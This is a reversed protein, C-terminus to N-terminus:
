FEFFYLTSGYSKGGNGGYISAKVVLDPNESMLILVEQVNEKAINGIITNQNNVVYIAPSGQYDYEKLKVKSFEPMKSLAEQRSTGDENNFSSGVLQTKYLYSHEEDMSMNIASDQQSPRSLLAENVSNAEHAIGMLKNNVDILGNNIDTLQQVSNELIKNKQESQELQRLLSVKDNALEMAQLLVEKKEQLLTENRSHLNQLNNIDQLEPDLNEFNQFQNQDYNYMENQYTYNDVIWNGYFDTFRNQFLLYLDYITGIGFLGFTFFWLLGTKVKGLYFRHIGAFGIFGLCCLFVSLGKDTRM